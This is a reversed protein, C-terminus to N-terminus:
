MYAIEGKDSCCLGHGEFIIKGSTPKTLGAIMKMWTTKGSGNEGLLGYIKGEELRLSIGAVAQKMRYTKSLGVCELMM